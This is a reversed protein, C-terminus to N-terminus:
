LVKIIEKLKIVDADNILKNNSGLNKSSGDDSDLGLRKIWFDDYKHILERVPTNSLLMTINWRTIRTFYYYNFQCIFKIVIAKALWFM